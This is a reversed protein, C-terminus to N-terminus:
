VEEYSVVKGTVMLRQLGAWDTIVTSGDILKVRYLKEVIHETDMHYKLEAPSAFQAGCIPCTYVPPPPPPPPPPEPYRLVNLSLSAQVLLNDDPDYVFGQANDVGVGASANAPVAFELSFGKTESPAFGASAKGSDAIITGNITIVIQTKLTAATPAGAKTSLNTVSTGCLYREGDYVDIATAQASVSDIPPGSLPIIWLVLGNTPEAPKAPQLIMQLVAMMMVVGVMGMMLKEEGAM